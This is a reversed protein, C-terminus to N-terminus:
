QKDRTMCTTASQSARKIAERKENWLGHNAIVWIEVNNATEVVCQTCVHMYMYQYQYTCLASCFLGFCAKKHSRTEHEFISM